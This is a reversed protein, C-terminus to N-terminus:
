RGILKNSIIDRNQFYFIDGHRYFVTKAFAFNCTIFLFIYKQKNYIYAYPKLVLHKDFM